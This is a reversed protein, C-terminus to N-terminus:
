LSFQFTGQGEWNGHEMHCLIKRILDLSKSFDVQSRFAEVPQRRCPQSHSATLKFSALRSATNISIGNTSTQPHSASLLRVDARVVGLRTSVTVLSSPVNSSRISVFSASAGPRGHRM